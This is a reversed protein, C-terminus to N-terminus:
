GFSIELELPLVIRLSSLWFSDVSTSEVLFSGLNSCGVLGRVQGGLWWSLLVWVTLFFCYPGSHGPFVPKTLELPLLVRRVFRRVRRFEVFSSSSSSRVFRFQV